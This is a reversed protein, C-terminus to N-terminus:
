RPRRAAPLRSAATLAAPQGSELPPKLASRHRTGAIATTARDMWPGCPRLPRRLRPRVAAQEPERPGALNGGYAIIARSLEDWFARDLQGPMIGLDRCIEAIVAGVPRRRVEAAIEAETPLRALGPDQTHDAPQPEPQADPRAARQERAAPARVPPPTLDQGRAARQCLTAELGAAPRLGNLGNTIRGPIDALDATGFPKAFLAFGPAAARLQVTGALQKGDDILKLVRGLRSPTDANVRPPDPDTTPAPAQAAAYMFPVLSFTPAAINYKVYRSRTCGTAFGLGSPCRM